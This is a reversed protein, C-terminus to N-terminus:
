NPKGWLYSLRAGSTIMAGLLPHFYKGLKELRNEKTPFNELGYVQCESKKDEPNLEIFIGYSLSNVLIKTSQARSSQHKHEPDDKDVQKLSIKM